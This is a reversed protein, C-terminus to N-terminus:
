IRCELVISRVTGLRETAEKEQCTELIIPLSIRLSFVVCNKWLAMGGKWSGRNNRREEGM